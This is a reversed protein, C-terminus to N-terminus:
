VPWELLRIHDHFDCGDQTCDVSPTVRGELDVDWGNLRGTHGNPCTYLVRDGAHAPNTVRVRKWSNPPEEFAATQAFPVDIV